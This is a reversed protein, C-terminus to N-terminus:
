QSANLAISGAGALATVGFRRRKAAGSDSITQDRGEHCYVVATSKLVLSLMKVLAM